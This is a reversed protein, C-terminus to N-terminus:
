AEDPLGTPHDTSRTRPTSTSTTSGRSAPTQLGWEGLVTTTVAQGWGQAYDDARFFTTNVVLARRQTMLPIRGAVHGAWGEPTMSYVFGYTFVRDIWGKLIAPYGMWFIPAVFVSGTPGAVLRQQAAVDAPKHAQVIDVLEHLSKGRLARRALARRLRGGAMEVLRDALNAQELLEDPVSHDFFQAADRGTFVPDFGIAYLDVGRVQHGAGALGRSVERLLAHDFLDSNPNAIVTLVNM